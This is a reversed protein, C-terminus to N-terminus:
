LTACVEEFSPRQSVNPQQCREMLDGLGPSPDSRHLLESLLIGFARVEIKELAKAQHSPYFSAAGFDGLLCNGQANWLVNHAYLDGHLIGHNHLHEAASAIGTAISLTAEPSFHLDNPYIDRTCSDLSPPGALATFAPPILEMVLGPAGSPHGIIHGLSCIMHPHSGATLSAAVECEPLGDSTMTGKFIKVAVERSQQWRARHIHGSAGEGLLRTLELEHWPIGPPLSHLSPAPACPNGALALWSLRPLSLLWDPLDHVDNAAIRIMELNKCNALSSPLERLRNGSLMLKQLPSCQGLSSPLTEIRNDTLILWRLTPSLSKASVIGIQNSKFGVMSLQPCDGISEPLHEFRNESCFFIKLKHLRGLDKPLDRLQNGTLNLVELSDALQFIEEPFDELDCCLHLRRTGALKGDRLDKLTHM